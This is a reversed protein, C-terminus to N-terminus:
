FKGLYIKYYPNLGQSLRKDLKPKHWLDLAFQFDSKSVAKSAIAKALEAEWFHSLPHGPNYWPQEPEKTYHLLRTTADEYVNLSNWFNPIKLPLNPRFTLHMFDSYKYGRRLTDWMDVPNWGVKACDIVMVSSQPWPKKNFKDPQYTCAVAEDKLMDAYGWLESIDGFVLQDADLYIAHGEYNCFHPIMFRRLSFGTGQHLGKPVEWGPGMMPIIVVNSSTNRKISHSLVDLAIKTKLETGVFIKIPGKPM